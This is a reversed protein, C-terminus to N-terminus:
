HIHAISPPRTERVLPLPATELESKNREAILRMKECLEAEEKKMLHREYIIAGFM